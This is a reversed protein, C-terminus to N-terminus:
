RPDSLVITAPFVEGKPRAAVSRVAAERMQALLPRDPVPHMAHVHRLEPGSDLSQSNSTGKERVRWEATVHDVWVAPSRQWLRLQLEQDALFTEVNWGGVADLVDRRYVMSQGAIPTSILAESVTTSGNFVSANFGTTVYAGDGARRQYRILTNSHAAGAGSRMMAGVLREVHDPYLVDDDAFNLVYQGRALGYGTLIAELTGGNHPRNHLLVQPFPEVLDDVPDGADNVVIIELNPYSQAAASALAGVLDDRRNYTTIIISVLPLGTDALPAAPPVPPIAALAPPACAPRMLAIEVADLVSRPAAPDYLAVGAVFEDANSTLTAAVGYGQRAFAVAPGADGLDPCVVVAAAELASSVAPDDTRLITLHTLGPLSGGACVVTVPGPFDALGFAPIALTELREHPGWIVVAPVRPHPRVNPVAPEGLVRECNRLRPLVTAWRAAEAWSRVLMADCLTFFERALLAIESPLRSWLARAPQGSIPLTGEAYALLHALRSDRDATGRLIQEAVSTALAGRLDDFLVMGYFSAARERRAVAEVYANGIFGDETVIADLAPDLRQAYREARPGFASIM